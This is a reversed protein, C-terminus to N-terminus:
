FYVVIVNYFMNYYFLVCFAMFCFKGLKFCKRCTFYKKINANLSEVANNTSAIGPASHFIQWEVFDGQVWQQYFYLTFESSRVLWHSFMMLFKSDFEGRSLTSHLDTLDQLILEKEANGRLKDECAKKVHFYCMLPHAEPFVSLLARRESLESDTMVYAPMFSVQPLVKSVLDKLGQAVRHYVATM